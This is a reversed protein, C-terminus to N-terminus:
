NPWCEERDLKEAGRMACNMKHPLLAPRFIERRATPAKSVESWSPSAFRMAAKSSCRTLVQRQANPDWLAGPRDEHFLIVHHLLLLVDVFNGVGILRALTQQALAEREAKTEPLAQSVGNLEWGILSLNDIQRTLTILTKGIRASLSMTAGAAADAVRQTFFSLARARLDTPKEPVIVSVTVPAGDGTLDYPGTFSRLIMTLLTTKGLGNIGAILTVGAPFNWDIGSGRPDGPFLGYSQVRLHELVPLNIM